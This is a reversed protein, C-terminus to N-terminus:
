NFLFRYKEYEEKQKRKSLKLFLMKIIEDKQKIEENLRNIIDNKQKELKEFQTTALDDLDNCNKEDFFEDTDDILDYNYIKAKKKLDDISIHFVIVNKCNKPKLGLKNELDNYFNKKFSIKNTMKFDPDEKLRYNIYEKLLDTKRCWIRRNVFLYKYRIFNHIPTYSLIKAKIKRKTIPVIRLNVNIKYNVFYNFLYCMTKEDNIYNRLEDFYETQNKYKEAPLDLTLFRRGTNDKICRLNNSCSMFSMTNKEQIPDKFLGRYRMTEETVIDKLNNSLTTYNSQSVTLEEFYIFLKGLWHINTNGLIDKPDGKLTAEDGLMKVLLNIFTSKGIGKLVSELILMTTNKNGKCINSIWSIVYEYINDDNNSVFAKIYNNLIWEAKRKTEEDFNSISIKKYKFGKFANVYKNKIIRDPCTTDIKIEKIRNTKNFWLQLHKPLKDLYAIQFPRINITKLTNIFYYPCNGSNQQAIHKNIYGKSKKFFNNEDNIFENLKNKLFQKKEKELKNM